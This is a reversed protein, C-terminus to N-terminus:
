KKLRFPTGCYMCCFSGTAVVSLVATNRHSLLPLRVARAHKRCNKEQMVTGHCLTCNLHRALCFAVCRAVAFLVLGGLAWWGYTKDDTQWLQWGAGVFTVAAAWSLLHLLAVQLIRGARPHHRARRVRQRAPTETADTQAPLVQNM